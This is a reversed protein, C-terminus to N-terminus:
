FAPNNELFHSAIERFPALLNENRRASCSIRNNGPKLLDSKNVVVCHPINDPMRRMLKEAAISDYKFASTVVIYSTIADLEEQPIERFQEQGAYETIEFRVGPLDLRHMQKGVTPYYRYQSDFEIGGIRRLITTKGVAAPGILAVRITTIEMTQLATIGNESYSEIKNRYFFVNVVCLTALAKKKTVSDM